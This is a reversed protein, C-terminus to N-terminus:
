VSPGDDLIAKRLTDDGIRVNTIISIPANQSMKSIIDPLGVHTSSIDNVVSVSFTFRPFTKAEM